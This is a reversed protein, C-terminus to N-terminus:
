GAHSDYTQRGVALTPQSVGHIVAMEKMMKEEEV